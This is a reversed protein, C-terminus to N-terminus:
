YRLHSLPLNQIQFSPDIKPATILSPLLQRLHLSQLFINQLLFINEQLELLLSLHVPLIPIQTLFCTHIHNHLEDCIRPSETQTHLNHVVYDKHRTDPTGLHLAHM